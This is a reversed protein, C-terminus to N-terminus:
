MIGEVRGWDRMAAKLEAAEPEETDNWEPKITRHTIDYWRRQADAKCTEPTVKEHFYLHMKAAGNHRALEQLRGVFREVRDDNWTSDMEV